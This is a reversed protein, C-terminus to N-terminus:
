TNLFETTGFGIEPIRPVELEKVNYEFEIGSSKFSIEGFKIIWYVSTNQHSILVKKIFARGVANYPAIGKNQYDKIWSELKRALDNDSLNACRIRSPVTLMPEDSQKWCSYFQRIVTSVDTVAFIVSAVHLKKQDATDYVNRAKIATVSQSTLVRSALGGVFASAAQAAFYCPLQEREVGQQDIANLGDGFFQSYQSAHTNSLSVIADADVPPAVYQGSWGYGGHASLFSQRKKGRRDPQNMKVAHQEDLSMIAATLTEDYPVPLGDAIPCTVALTM